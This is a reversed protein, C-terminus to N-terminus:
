AFCGVTGGHLVEEVLARRADATPVHVDDIEIRGVGAHRVLAGDVKDIQDGDVVHAVIKMETRVTRQHVADFVDLVVDVPQEFAESRQEILVRGGQRWRVDEEITGTLNFKVRVVPRHVADDVLEHLFELQTEAADIENIRVITGVRRVEDARQQSRQRHHQMEFQRVHVNERFDIEDFPVACELLVDVEVGFHEVKRIQQRVLVEIAISELRLEGLLVLLEIPCQAADDFVVTEDRVNRQVDLVPQAHLLDGIGNVFGVPKEESVQSVVIQGHSRIQHRVRVADFM